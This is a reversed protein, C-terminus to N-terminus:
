NLRMPIYKRHEKPEVEISDGELPVIRNLQPESDSFHRSALFPPFATPLPSQLPSYNVYDATGPSFQPSSTNISTPSQCWTMTAFPDANPMDNSKADDVPPIFRPSSEMQVDDMEIGWLPMEWDMHAQM